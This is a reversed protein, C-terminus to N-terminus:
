LSTMSERFTMVLRQLDNKVISPTVKMQFSAFSTFNGTSTFSDILFGGIPFNAIGPEWIFSVDRFFSGTVYQERVGSSRTTRNSGSEEANFDVLFFDQYAHAAPKQILSGIYVGLGSANVGQVSSENIGWEVRGVNVPRITYDYTTAGWTFSGTVDEFPAYARFEYTARLQDASTKTITTPSGSVDLILARSFLTNGTSTNFMGIEAIVGNGQTETFLRTRRFGAYSGSAVSGTFAIITDAFGGATNTRGSFESVLAVDTAAPPTAGGGVAAWNTLNTVSSGSQLSMSDLAQNVILNKFSWTQKVQQTKADILEIFYRGELGVSMAPIDINVDQIAEPAWVRIRSM